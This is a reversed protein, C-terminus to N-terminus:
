FHIRDVRVVSSGNVAVQVHDFHTYICRRINNDANAGAVHTAYYLRTYMPKLCAIRQSQRHRHRISKRGPCPEPSRHLKRDASVSMQPMLLNNEPASQSQLGARALYASPGMLLPTVPFELVGACINLYVGETVTYNLEAV